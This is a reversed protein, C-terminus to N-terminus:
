PSRAYCPASNVMALDALGPVVRDDTVRLMQVRRLLTGKPSLFAPAPWGHGCGQSRLTLAALARLYAPRGGSVRAAEADAALEQQLHLRGALLRVLPHWFYVAVSLRALLWAAFDGRGVHALEHAIVARRQDRTWGRWDQPLLLVPRWWGATAATTLDASERVVIPRRVNMLPRCEDVLHLLEPELVPTSRRLVQGIAWSGLLLRLLGFLTGAGAVTAVFSPVFHTWPSPSGASPSGPSITRLVSILAALQIEAGQASEPQSPRHPSTDINQGNEPDIAPETLATGPGANWTWWAPLPCCALVALVLTAALATLAAAAGAGPSRRAAMASLVLGVPAVAAVQLALWLLAIGLDNM